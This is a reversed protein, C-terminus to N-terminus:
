HISAVLSSAVLVAGAVWYKYGAIMAQYETMDCTAIRGFIITLVAFIMLICSISKM